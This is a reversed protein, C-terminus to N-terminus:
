QADGYSDRHTVSTGLHGQITGGLGYNMVQLAESDQQTTVLSFGTLTEMRRAILMALASETDPLYAVKSSRKHSFLRQVGGVRCVMYM